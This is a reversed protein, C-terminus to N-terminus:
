NQVSCYTRPPTSVVYMNEGQACTANAEEVRKTSRYSGAACSPDITYQDVVTTGEIYCVDAFFNPILCLTQGGERRSLQYWAAEDPCKSHDQVHLSIEWSYRSKENCDVAEHIPAKDSGTIVLCNGIALAPDETPPSSTTRTPTPSNSSANKTPTPSNPTTSTSEVPQPNSSLRQLLFFGGVAIVLVAAVITIIQGAGMGKKPPTAQPPYYPQQPPYQQAGYPQQPNYPPQGGQGQIGYPQGAAPGQPQGQTYPNHPQGGHPNQPQGQPSYPQYPPQTM